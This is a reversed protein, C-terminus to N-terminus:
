CSTRLLFNELHASVRVEYAPLQKRSFSSVRADLVNATCRFQVRFTTCLGYTWMCECTLCGFRRSFQFQRQPKNQNAIYNPFSDLAFIFAVSARALFVEKLSVLSHFSHSSHSSNSKTFRWKYGRIPSEVRHNAEVLEQSHLHRSEVTPVM